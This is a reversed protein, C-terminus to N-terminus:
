ADVPGPNDFDQSGKEAWRGPSSVAVFSRFEGFAVFGTDSFGFFLSGFKAVFDFDTQSVKAVVLGVGLEVHLCEHTREFLVVGGVEVTKAKSASTEFGFIEVGVLHAM